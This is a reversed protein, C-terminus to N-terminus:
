GAVLEELERAKRIRAEKKGDAYSLNDLKGEAKIFKGKKDRKRPTTGTATTLSDLKTKKTTM